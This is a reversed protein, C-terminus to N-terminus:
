GDAYSDFTRPASVRPRGHMWTEYFSLACDLCNLGRTPDAAPGGDNSLQFWYGQRPDATRIVNGYADRPMARELDIQHQALPPRLGGRKGYPRTTDASPPRDSGTLASIDGTEVAGLALRGVDENLNRF